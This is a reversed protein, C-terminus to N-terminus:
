LAETRINKTKITKDSSNTVTIWDEANLIQEKLSCLMGSPYEALQITVSIHPCEGDGDLYIKVRGSKVNAKFVSHPRITFTKQEPTVGESAFVLTGQWIEEKAGEAEPRMLKTDVPNLVVPGLNNKEPQSAAAVAVPVLVPASTSAPVPAPANKEKEILSKIMADIQPQDFPTLLSGTIPDFHMIDYVRPTGDQRLTTGIYYKPKGSIFLRIEGNQLGSSTWDKTIIQRPVWGRKINSAMNLNAKVILIGDEHDVRCPNKAKVYGSSDGIEDNCMVQGLLREDGTFYDGSLSLALSSLIVTLIITSSRKSLPAKLFHWTLWVSLFFFLLPLQWYETMWSLRDQLINSGAVIKSHVFGYVFLFILALTGGIILLVSILKHLLYRLRSAWDPLNTDTNETNRM